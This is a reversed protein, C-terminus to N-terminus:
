EAFAKLMGALVKRKEPALKYLDKVLEFFEVDSRLCVVIDALIDNNKQEQLTVEKEILDSKKIGFYNALMEVMDLRPYKTGNVLSTLTFYSVGLAECVDNRTKNNLEMYRQLNRSFIEKGDM